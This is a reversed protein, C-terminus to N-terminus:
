LIVAMLKGWEEESVFVQLHQLGNTDIVTEYRIKNEDLFVIFSDVDDINNISRWKREFVTFGEDVADAYKRLAAYLKSFYYSSFNKLRSPAHYYENNSMSWIGGNIRWEGDATDACWRGLFDSNVKHSNELWEVYERTSGVAEFQRYIEALVPIDAPDNEVGDYNVLHYRNGWDSILFFSAEDESLRIRSGEMQPLNKFIAGHYGITSDMADLDFRKLELKKM